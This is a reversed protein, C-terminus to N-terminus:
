FSKQKRTSLNRFILIDTLIAAIRVRNKKKIQGLRQPFIRTYKRFIFKLWEENYDDM